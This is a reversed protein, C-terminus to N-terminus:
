SYILTIVKHEETTIMGSEYLDDIFTNIWLTTIYFQFSNKKMKEIDKLVDIITTPNIKKNNM